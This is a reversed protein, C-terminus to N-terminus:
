ATDLLGLRLKAVTYDAAKQHADLTISRDFPSPVQHRHAAVHRVQRSALWFRVGLGALLLTCFTLTWLFESSRSVVDM